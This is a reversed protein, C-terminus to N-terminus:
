NMKLEFPYQIDRKVVAVGDVYKPSFRAKSVALAVTKEFKPFSCVAKPDVPIGAVSLDMFVYCSANGNYKSIERRIVHVAPPKIEYENRDAAGARAAAEADKKYDQPSKYEWEGALLDSKFEDLGEIQYSMLGKLNAALDLYSVAQPIDGVGAFVTANLIALEMREWCTLGVGDLPATEDYAGQWDQEKLKKNIEGFRYLVEWRALEPVCTEEFEMKTVDPKETKKAHAMGSQICTVAVLSLLLNRM